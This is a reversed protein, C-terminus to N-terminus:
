EKMNSFIFMVSDLITQPIIKALCRYLISKPDFLMFIYQRQKQYLHYKMFLSKGKKDVKELILLKRRVDQMIGTDQVM